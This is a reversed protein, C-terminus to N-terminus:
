RQGQLADLVCVGSFVDASGAVGDALVGLGHVEFHLTLLSQFFSPLPGHPSLIFPSSLLWSRLQVRGQARGSRQGWTTGGVAGPKKCAWLRKRRGM